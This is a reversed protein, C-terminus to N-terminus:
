AATGSLLHAALRARQEVTLDSEALQRIYHEARAARLDRRLGPLRPSQEGHHRFEAGISSALTRAEKDKAAM